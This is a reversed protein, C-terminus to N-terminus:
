GYIERRKHMERRQPPHHPKFLLPKNDMQSVGKKEVEERFAKFIDQNAQQIPLIM